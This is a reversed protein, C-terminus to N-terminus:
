PSSQAPGIYRNALVPAYLPNSFNAHAQFLSDFDTTDQTLGPVFIGSVNGSGVSGSPGVTISLTGGGLQMRLGRGTRCTGSDLLRTTQTLSRFMGPYNWCRRATTTPQSEATISSTSRCGRQRNHRLARASHSKSASRLLPPNCSRAVMSPATGAMSPATGTSRSSRMQLNPSSPKGGELQGSELCVAHSWFVSPM